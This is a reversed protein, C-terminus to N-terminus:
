AVSDRRLPELHDRLVLGTTGAPYTRVTSRVIRVHAFRQDHGAWGLLHCVVGHGQRKAAASLRLTWYTPWYAPTATNTEAHQSRM